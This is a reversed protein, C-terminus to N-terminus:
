DAYSADYASKEVAVVREEYRGPTNNIIVHAAPWQKDVGFAEELDCEFGNERCMEVLQEFTVEDPQNSFADNTIIYTTM